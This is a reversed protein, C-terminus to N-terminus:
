SVDRRRRGSPATDLFSYGYRPVTAIWAPESPDAELKRRLRYVHETITEARQWESSSEWVRQLLEEQSFVVGPRAALFALLDFERHTLDVAAGANRVTRARLDIVLEDFALIRSDHGGIAHLVARAQLEPGWIPSRVYDDAVRAELCHMGEAADEGVLVIPANAASRLETLYSPMAPVVGCGVVVLDPPQAEALSGAEAPSGTTSVRFPVQALIRSISRRVDDNKAVVLVAM